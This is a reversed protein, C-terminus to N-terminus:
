IRSPRVKKRERAQAQSNFRSERRRARAMSRRTTIAGGLKNLATSALPRSATERRPAFLGVIIIGLDRKLANPQRDESAM